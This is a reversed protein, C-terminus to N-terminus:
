HGRMEEQFSICIVQATMAKGMPSQSVSLFSISNIIALSAMGVSFGRRERTKWPHRRLGATHPWRCWRNTRPLSHMSNEMDPCHGPTFQPGESPSADELMLFSAQRSDVSCCLNFLRCLLSGPSSAMWLLSVFFSM